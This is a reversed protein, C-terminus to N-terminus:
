ASRMRRYVRYAGSAAVFVGVGMCVQWVDTFELSTYTMVVATLILVYPVFKPAKWALPEGVRQKRLRLLAVGAIGYFIWVSFTFLGLLEEFNNSLLHVTTLLVMAIAGVIPVGAATRQSLWAPAMRDKGEGMVQALRSTSIVMATVSGFCCLVVVSSLIRSGSGGMGVEFAEALVADSDAARSAGLLHIVCFQVLGYVIVLIATGYAVTKGLTRAPNKLDGSILIVDSWGSYTWMIGVMAGLVAALLSFEGAAAGETPQSVTEGGGVGEGGGFLAAVCVLAVALVKSFTLVRQSIASAKLGISALFGALAVLGIAAFTSRLDPSGDDAAAQSSESGPPSAISAPFMDALYNVGVSAVVAISAPYTLLLGVWGGVFALGPGFARRYLVFFGGNYPLRAGCEAVTFAACATVLGGVVWFGVGIWVGNLAPGSVAKAVYKPAFFIGSGLVIGLYLALGDPTTLRRSGATETM